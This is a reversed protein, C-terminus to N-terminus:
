IGLEVAKVAPITAAADIAAAATQYKNKAIAMFNGLQGIAIEDGVIAPLLVEFLRQPDLMLEKIKDMIERKRKMQAQALTLGFYDDSLIERIKDIHAIASDLRFAPPDVGQTYLMASPLQGVWPVCKGAADVSFSISDTGDDITIQGGSVRFFGM